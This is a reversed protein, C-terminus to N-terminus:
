WSATACTAAVGPKRVARIVRLMSDGLRNTSSMSHSLRSACVTPNRSDSFKAFHRASM